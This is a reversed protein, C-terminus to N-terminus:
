KAAVVALTPRQLHMGFSVVVVVVRLGRQSATVLAPSFTQKAAVHGCFRSQLYTGEAAAAFTPEHLHTDGEVVVDVVSGVKHSFTAFGPWSVHM